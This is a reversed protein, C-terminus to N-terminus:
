NVYKHINILDNKQSFISLFFCMKNESCHLINFSISLQPKSIALGYIIMFHGFSILMNM